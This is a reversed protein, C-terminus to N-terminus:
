SLSLIKCYLLRARGLVPSLDTLVYLISSSKQSGALAGQLCLNKLCAQVTKIVSLACNKNKNKDKEQDPNKTQEVHM